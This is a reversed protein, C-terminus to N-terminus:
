SVHVTRFVGPLGESCILAIRNPSHLHSLLLTRQEQRLCSSKHQCAKSMITNIAHIQQCDTDNQCHRSSKQVNLM